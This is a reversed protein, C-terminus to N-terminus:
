LFNSKFIEELIEIDATQLSPRLAEIEKSKEPSRNPIQVSLIYGRGLSTHFAGYYYRNIMLHYTGGGSGNISSIEVTKDQDGYAAKFTLVKLTEQGKM